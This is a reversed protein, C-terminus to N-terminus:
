EIMMLAQQLESRAHDDPKQEAAKIGARYVAVAGDIDGIEELVAGKQYYAYCYLADAALTRDFWEIAAPWDEAKKYEMALGYTLFPDNPDKQLLTQLQEMRKSVM